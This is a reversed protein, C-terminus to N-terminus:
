ISERGCMSNCLSWISHVCTSHTWVTRLLESSIFIFLLIYIFIHFCSAFHVIVPFVTIISRFCISLVQARQGDSVTYSLAVHTHGNCRNQHMVTCKTNRSSCMIAALLFIPRHQIRFLSKMCNLYYRLLMTDCQISTCTRLKSPM